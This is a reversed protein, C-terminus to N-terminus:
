MATVRCHTQRLVLVFRPITCTLQNVKVMGGSAGTTTLTRVVALMSEKFRGM